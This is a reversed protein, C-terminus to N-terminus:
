EGYKKPYDPAPLIKLLHSQQDSTLNNPILIELKLYIDGRMQQEKNPMGKGEIRIVDGPQTVVGKDSKIYIISNDPLKFPFNYGFIAEHLTLRYASILDSKERYWNKLSEDVIERLIIVFDGTEKVGPEDHAKGKIPIASGDGMGPEIVFDVDVFEEVIKKWSLFRM